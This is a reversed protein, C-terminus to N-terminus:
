HGQAREWEQHTAVVREWLRDVAGRTSHEFRLDFLDAVMAFWEDRRTIPQGTRAGSGVRSLVLGRVVDVGTADRREAMPVRVFGSDPASSLWEHQAAFDAPRADGSTWTM